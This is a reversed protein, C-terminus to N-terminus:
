VRGRTLAGPRQYAVWIVIVCLLYFAGFALYAATGTGQSIFAQRLALNVFVGGFAGVAGAIGILARSRRRADDAAVGPDAGAAVARDAKTAFIAPIMKYTSGNGIGTLAFILVFGVIFAPLSSTLSAVLVVTAAGSM